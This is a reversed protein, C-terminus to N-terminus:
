CYVKMVAKESGEGAEGLEIKGGNEELQRLVDLIAGYLNYFEFARAYQLLLSTDNLVNKLHKVLLRRAKKEKEEEREHEIDIDNNKAKVRVSM